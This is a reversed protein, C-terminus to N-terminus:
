AETRQFADMSGPWRSGAPLYDFGAAQLVGVLGPYDVKDPHFEVIMGNVRSLWDTDGRLLEEEGGEIDLKVLVNAGVPVRELVADMSMVSVEIDSPHSSLTGLNSARNQAFRAMGDLAGVASQLIVAPLGALNVRVLRANSPDPEVAIILRPQLTWHYFLSTLGINAGLDVVVDVQRSPFPLRYAEDMLVERISQIDGRNLRYAIVEGRRLRIRRPSNETPLRIVRLVRFLIVDTCLRLRSRTDGCLSVAAKIEHVIALMTLIPRIARTHSM